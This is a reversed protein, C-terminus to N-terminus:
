QGDDPNHVVVDAACAAVPCHLMGHNSTASERQGVVDNHWSALGLELQLAVTTLVLATSTPVLQECHPSVSTHTELVSLLRTPQGHTATCSQKPVGM